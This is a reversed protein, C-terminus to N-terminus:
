VKERLDEFWNQLVPLLFGSTKLIPNFFLSKEQTDKSILANDFNIKQLLGLVVGLILAMKLGGFVAGGIRNFIGLFLASAINSLLKALLHIGIVVLIFTIVFALVKASKSDGLCSGIVSSFKVAVYIGVFFAVLSAFEVILGNRIGKFIGYALLVGLFLDILVNTYFYAVFILSSLRM